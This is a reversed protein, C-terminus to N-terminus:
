FTVKASLTGGDFFLDGKQCREDAGFSKIRNQKYFCHHEFALDLTLKISEDKCFSHMWRIGIAFDVVTIWANLHQRVEKNNSVGPFWDRMRAHNDFDGFLGSAAASGYFNLGYSLALTAELGIQPGVGIFDTKYHGYGGHSNADFLSSDGHGKIKRHISQRIDAVRLGAYPKFSLCPAMCFQYSALLDWINLHLGLHLSEKCGGHSGNSYLNTWYTSLGWCSDNFLYGGGIRFGPSWKYHLNNVKEKRFSVIEGDSTIEDLSKTERCFNLGNAYARWYLLDAQLFFEGWSYEMEMEPIMEYAPAEAGHSFYTEYCVKESPPEAYIEGSAFSPKAILCGALLLTTYKLIEKM